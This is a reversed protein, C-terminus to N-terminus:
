QVPLYNQILTELTSLAIEKGSNVYRVEFEVDETEGLLVLNLQRVVNDYSDLYTFGVANLKMGAIEYYEYMSVSVLRSGYRERMYDPYTEHMFSVPDNLKSGRPLICINPVYGAEELYITISGEDANLKTPLGYPVLTSFGLEPCSLTELTGSEAFAPAASLLLVLSLILSLIRKM